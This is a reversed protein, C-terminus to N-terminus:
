APQMNIVRAEPENYKRYDRHGPDAFSLYRGDFEGLWAVVLTTTRSLSQFLRLPDQQLHKEFLMEVNDLFVTQSDTVAIADSMVKKCQLVRERADLELLRETLVQNVNILPWGRDRSLSRMRDSKGSAIPAVLLLLRHYGNAVEEVASLVDDM